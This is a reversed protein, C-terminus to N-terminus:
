KEEWVWTDIVFDFKYRGPYALGAEAAMSGPQQHRVVGDWRPGATLKVGHRPGGLAIGTLM